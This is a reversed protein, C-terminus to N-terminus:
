GTKKMVFKGDLLFFNIGVEMAGSRTEWYASRCIGTVAYMINKQRFLGITGKYLGDVSKLEFKCRNLDNTVPEDVLYKFTINDNKLQGNTYQKWNDLLSLSSDITIRTVVLEAKDVPWSKTIGFFVIDGVMKETEVLTVDSQTIGFSKDAPMYIAMPQLVNHGPASLSDAVPHSFISTEEKLGQSIRAVKAAIEYVTFGIVCVMAVIAFHKKLNFNEKEESM